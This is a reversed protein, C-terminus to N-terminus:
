LAPGVPGPEGARDLVVNELLEDRLFLENIRRSRRHTQHRIDKRETRRMHGPPVRNGYAPIVDALGARGRRLLQCKSQAVSDLVHVIRDLGPEIDVYERRSDGEEEIRMAVEELLDGLKSGRAPDPRPHHAVPELGHVRARPLQAKM